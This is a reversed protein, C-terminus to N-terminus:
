TSLAEQLEPSQLLPLEHTRTFALNRSISKRIYASRTMRCAAAVEDVQHLTAEPLRLVLSFLDPNRKEM